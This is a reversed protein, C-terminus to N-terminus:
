EIQETASVLVSPPVTLGLVKATKLNITLDFVTPLQVPLDAPKEGRLIRDVYGAGRRFLDPFNPGYSLLGGERAYAINDHITPIKYRLTRAIIATQNFGIFPDAPLVLGTDTGDLGDIAQEIEAASRVRLVVSEMMLSRAAAEFSVLFYSGGGPATDPNFMIAARKISPVVQKLLDLWKGGMAGEVNGFGTINGGPRALSAVVGAAVPDSVVVFVIPIQKTEQFLAVAVATTVGVIVDPQLAVLEKTLATNKEKKADTWRQEIHLNRGETWGLGSLREVFAAFDSSAAGVGRTWGVLAAVRRMRTPQQGRAAVPWAAAAGGLLTIFERRRM